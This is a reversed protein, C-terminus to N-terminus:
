DGYQRTVGGTMHVYLTSVKASVLIADLGHARNGMVQRCLAAEQEHAFAGLDVANVVLGTEESSDSAMEIVELRLTQRERPSPLNHQRFQLM